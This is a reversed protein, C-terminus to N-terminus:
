EGTKVSCWSYALHKPNLLPWSLTIGARTPDKCTCSTNLHPFDPPKHSIHRPLHCEIHCSLHGPAPWASQERCLIPPRSTCCCSFFHDARRLALSSNLTAPLFHASFALALRPAEHPCPCRWPGCPGVRAQTRFPGTPLVRILEPLLPPASAWTGPCVCRPLMRGVWGGAWCTWSLLRQIKSSPIKSWELMGQKEKSSYHPSVSISGWSGCPTPPVAGWLFFISDRSSTSFPHQASLFLAVPAPSAPLVAGEALCDPSWGSVVSAKSPSKKEAASRPVHSRLEWILSRVWAGQLPLAPGGPFDWRSPKLCPLEM